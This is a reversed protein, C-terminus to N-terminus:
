LPENQPLHLLDEARTQDLDWHGKAFPAGVISTGLEHLKELLDKRKIISGVLWVPMRMMREAISYRHISPLRDEQKTSIAQSLSKAMACYLNAVSLRRVLMVSKSMRRAM